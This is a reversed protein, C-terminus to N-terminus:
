INRGFRNGLGKGPGRGRGFGRGQGTDTNNEPKQNRGRFRRFLMSLDNQGPEYNRDTRNAGFNTCIGMKRGTMSGQGLPGTQNFGPMNGGGINNILVFEERREIQLVYELLGSYDRNIYM